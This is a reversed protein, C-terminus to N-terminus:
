AEFDCLVWDVLERLKGAVALHAPHKAYAEFVERSSFASSLAFDYSIPRRVFDWGHDWRVIGEIQEPLAILEALARALRADDRAVEPKLRILVLHHVTSM